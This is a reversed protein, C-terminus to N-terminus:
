KNVENAGHGKDALDMDSTENVYTPVFFGFDVYRTVKGPDCDVDVRLLWRVRSFFVVIVCCVIYVSFCFSM